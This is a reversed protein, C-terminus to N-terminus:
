PFWRYAVLSCVRNGTSDDGNQYATVTFEAASGGGNPLNTLTGANVVRTIYFGALYGRVDADTVQPNAPTPTSGPDRTLVTPDELVSHMTDFAVHTIRIENCWKIGLLLVALSGTVGIVLVAVSFAVEVLTFGSRLTRKM